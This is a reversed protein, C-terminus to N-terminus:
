FSFQAWTMNENSQGFIFKNSIVLKWFSNKAFFNYQEQTIDKRKLAVNLNKYFKLYSTETVLTMVELFNLNQNIIEM